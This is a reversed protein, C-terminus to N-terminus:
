KPVVELDVEIHDPAGYVSRRAHLTTMKYAVGEFDFRDGITPRMFLPLLIKARAAAFEEAAGRSASSDARVTTKQAGVALNVPSFPCTTAEGYISQSHIDRGILRRLVGTSNPQFM